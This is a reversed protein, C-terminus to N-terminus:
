RQALTRFMLYYSCSRNFLFAGILQIGSIFIKFAALATMVDTSINQVTCAATSSLAITGGFLLIYYTTPSKFFENTPEMLRDSYIGFPTMYARNNKSVEFKEMPFPFKSCFNDFTIFIFQKWKKKSVLTVPCRRVSLQLTEFMIATYFVETRNLLFLTSDFHFKRM